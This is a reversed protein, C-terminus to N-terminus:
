PTLNKIRFFRSRQPRERHVVPHFYDDGTIPEDLPTWQANPALSSSTEIQWTAGAPAAYHIRTHDQYLEPSTVNVGGEFYIDIIPSPTHIPGGNIGNTSADFAQFSVVYIGSKTATLRRGHIHGFPDVGASGDTQTVNFSNIGTQGSAVSITPNTAGSEWFAFAGGPPGKVSVIRARIYSGLAPADPEPGGYDGTAAQVTLTINGQYYGAYRGSNTFTLTKVYLSNTAFDPGNYFYLPAGQNTSLAGIQLHGHDQARANIICLTAAIGIAASICIIKM